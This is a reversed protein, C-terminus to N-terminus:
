TYNEQFWPDPVMLIYRDMAERFRNKYQRPTVVTPEKTSGGVFGREKVWSELKKDWTFTRIFDIIGVTLNHSENDVGIVLSYDMVNMKALFLTDNWLSARLLKKDYERVFIPSEYIYEVMNEDLLVENEKGTQKVHRNRMSGKLDFIRSTKKEYFLNEMIIVDMKFSKGSISNKIQIQYFGFVKALATPLEHFMAQGMYEFYSPAFKIFSDLETHSLEKIVFRDDLTKLFASGSKGGSSDWKVCRSLSQIFNEECGCTKRFADFQEAFFIKCSMVSNGEQFQYRLHMATKKTMIQETDPTKEDGDDEKYLSSSTERQSTSNLQSLVKPTNQDAINAVSEVETSVQVDAEKKTDEKDQGGSESKSKHGGKNSTNMKQLYDVSSLCFAILSSPEDERIIVFSDVFIHESSSTPYELPKWLTASRDAWFNTLTRMLSSKEPQGDISSTDMNATTTTTVPPLPENSSNRNKNGSSIREAPATGVSDEGHLVREGWRHISNELETELGNTLDMQGSRLVSNGDKQFGSGANNLNASKGRNDMHLPEEVADKVNKYIEVIPKSSKVRLAKYKNRNLQLRELERQLEFEKSLADFHIQDFFSALQGVKSDPNRDRSQFTVTSGNSSVSLRRLQTSLDRAHGKKPMTGTGISSIRAPLEFNTQALHKHPFGSNVFTDDLPLSSIGSQQHEGLIPTTQHYLLPPRTPTGGLNGSNTVIELNREKMLENFKSIGSKDTADEKRGDEEGKSINVTSEENNDGKEDSKESSNDPYTDNKATDLFLKKLQMATIRAIDKESPLFRKEFDAFESDWGAASDHLSRIVSNLRLHQDGPSNRYLDETMDLLQTKEAKVKTKLESIKEKGAMIKDDSMSDLKVRDLRDSVSSYFNNIKELIQYYLEVKLKIDINPKWIIKSRPTILEHIEISSYEMRVMLDNYGFYKVHDKAFDHTCNGIGTMGGNSSWFLLELYKGFSYNWTKESMQLIPTSTGCKKCYSWTLLINKLPPLRSQFQEIVVDVKGNGHVYSRYHDLLKSGCGHVCSLNATAVINEIFQGISIDTDWFYDISVLQPGICPTATKTSIMSYLVNITQHTGTGLMNHSLTYSLEWQRSRWTFRNKLDELEKDHMFKVLYRFDQQTLASKLKLDKISNEAEDEITWINKELKESESQKTNLEAELARAKQLLFPIPFKVTPSVSLIRQHFKDIFESFYGEAVQQKQHQFAQEYFTTSLSLFNDNFFSSELKLSFVAYIMFEAVDKIKRLIDSPYGRLIVTGGLSPKCGKIFTYSKSINGYIFTKVEFEECTGLKINTALKDVSIAIGAETLKAIREIVQPKMNYQVVVGAEDLLKLAHGSVNAGVLVVDPNLLTLRLVLKNLYEQEQALVSDLSMFHNENKQYVLPFMILLLRPNKVLRPMSKLPLSKSFVVGSIYESDEISAGCIRKIKVYHQKFDLGTSSRADLQINQVVRLIPVFLHIWKDVHNVNQDDLVQKLLAKMHVESVENLESKNEQNQMRFASASSIIRKLDRSSSLADSRIKQKVLVGSDNSRSFDNDNSVVSILNPTSHNFFEFEKRASTSAGNVRSKSKRRSKMRQLSAQARQFSKTNNRMSRINNQDLQHQDNLVAYLSMSGEDESGVESNYKSDSDIAHEDQTLSLVPSSETRSVHKPELRSSNSHTTNLYNQFNNLGYNFEFKFNNNSFNAVVSNSSQSSSRQSANTTNNNIYSSISNKIGMMQHQRNYIVHRQPSNSSLRRSSVETNLPSMMDVDRITYRDKANRRQRSSVDFSLSSTSPVTIELSGGQRTAPIAMKPPPPPTSRFIKSDEGTTLISQAEDDKLILMDSGQPFKETTDTRQSIDELNVNDELSSEDSSDDYNSAHDHCSRCVRMKGEHGFKDGDILFTCNGCFIQGCIRCHHKRRFTNFAKACAFCDKASGDKMWYEKSLVGKPVRKNNKHNNYFGFLFSRSFSATLSSSMSKISVSDDFETHFTRNTTSPARIPIATVTSKSEYVSSRKARASNALPLHLPKRIVNTNHHEIMKDQGESFKMSGLHSNQIQDNHTENFDDDVQFHVSSSDDEDNDAESFFVSLQDGPDNPILPIESHGPGDTKDSARPLGLETPVSMDSLVPNTVIETTTKPALPRQNLFEPMEHTKDVNPITILSTIGERTGNSM